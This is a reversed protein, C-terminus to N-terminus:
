KVSCAAGNNLFLLLPKYGMSKQKGLFGFQQRSGPAIV